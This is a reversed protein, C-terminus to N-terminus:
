DFFPLLLSIFFVALMMAMSAKVSSWPDGWRLRRRTKVRTETRYAARNMDATLVVMTVVASGVIAFCKWDVDPYVQTPAAYTRASVAEPGTQVLKESIQPLFTTKKIATARKMTLEKTHPNEVLIPM